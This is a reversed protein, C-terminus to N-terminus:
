KEMGKLLTRLFKMSEDRISDLTEITSNEKLMSHQLGNLAYQVFKIVEEKTYESSFRSMDIDRFFNNLSLVTLDDIHSMIKSKIEKPPNTIGEMLVKSEYPRKSFYRMKWFTVEMMKDFVDGQKDFEIKNIEEIIMFLYHKFVEYFLEAKSNFYLFIAGKSVGAAKYISNTSALEYGKTGFEILSAEIIKKIAEEKKTM